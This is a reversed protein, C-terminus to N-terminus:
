RGRPGARGGAARHAGPGGRPPRPPPPPGGAAPVAGPGLPQLLDARVDVRHPRRREGTELRGGFALVRGPPATSLAVSGSRWSTRMSAGGSTTNGYKVSGDRITLQIPTAASSSGRGPPASRM